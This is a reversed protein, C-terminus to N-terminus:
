DTIFENKESKYELSPLQLQRNDSSYEIRPIDGLDTSPLSPFQVQRNDTQSINDGLNFNVFDKNMKLM